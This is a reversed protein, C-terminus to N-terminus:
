FRFQLTLEVFDINEAPGTAQIFDGAAFHTYIATFTLRRTLAYESTLSVSWGVFREDSGGAARILQGSPAYVGDATELRWFFNVDATVRWGGAPQVTLFPHVNFFNRPGLVAAESFYNGRPFLPNFTGLDPDAPDGDGSAVNANIAVRPRWAADRFTYGTDTALTWARIDGAGFRGFQHLAEWNWDWAGGTGWVRAGLSHRRERATGQQFSGEDDRFGLYYLDIRGGIPAAGVAYAGWLAQDGDRFDDFAGRESVRPRAYFGDVRWASAQLIARAADFTRRVNPGERVNVLRGAGYQLEQRGPRLTLTAVAGAVRLDVFGNQLELENEDVPSPGGARGAALASVLQAFLRVDDGLRLDAHAAYRQLWVGARDQPDTGFAPDRTHEYRQRVEGGLSLYAGAVLPVFKLRDLSDRRNAPERFCAIDDDYRVKAVGPVCPADAAASM